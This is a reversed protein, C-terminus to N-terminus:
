LLSSLREVGADGPADGTGAEPGVQKSNAGLKTQRPSGTVLTPEGEDEEEFQEDGKALM